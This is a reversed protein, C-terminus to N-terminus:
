EPFWTACYGVSANVVRPPSVLVLPTASAYKWMLRRAAEFYRAHLCSSPLFTQHEELAWKGELDPRYRSQGLRAGKRALPQLTSGYMCLADAM